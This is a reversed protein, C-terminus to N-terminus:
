GQTFWSPREMMKGAAKEEAERLNSLMYTCFQVAAEAATLGGPIRESAHLADDTLVLVGTASIDGRYKEAREPSTGLNIANALITTQVIYLFQEQKGM